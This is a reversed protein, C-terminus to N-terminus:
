CDWYRSPFHVDPLFGQWTTLRQLVSLFCFLSGVGGELQYCGFKTFMEEIHSLFGMWRPIWMVESKFSRGHRKTEKGFRERHDALVPCDQLKGMPLDVHPMDYGFVKLFRHFMHLFKQCVDGSVLMDSEFSISFIHWRFMDCTVEVKLHKSTCTRVHPWRDLNIPVCGFVHTFELTERILADLSVAALQRFLHFGKQRWPRTYHFWGHFIHTHMCFTYTEQLYDSWAGESIFGARSCALLYWLCRTSSHEINIWNHKCSM